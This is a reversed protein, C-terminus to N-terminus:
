KRRVWLSGSDEEGWYVSTDDVAIGRPHQVGAALVTGVAVLGLRRM